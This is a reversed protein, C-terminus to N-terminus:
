SGQGQQRNRYAHHVEASKKHLNGVARTDAADGTHSISQHIVPGQTVQPINPPGFVKYMLDKLGDEFASLRDNSTALPVGQTPPPGGFMDYLGQKFRNSANKDGTGTMVTLGDIATSIKDLIKHKEGFKQLAEALRAIADVIKSIDKVIENGHKANFHGVAMEIKTGLNSWGRNASSLSDIEKNSYKPAKDFNKQSFVGQVLGPLLSEVGFSKVVENRLGANDEKGVYDQLRQILLEPNQQWKLVEQATVNGTLKALRAMGEPAGKGMLTKTMAAQLAGFSSMMQENTIAVQRGAYQYEQVTQASTKLVASFNQLGQGAQGSAQMLRELVYFVGVLAAKTELSLSMAGKLGKATSELAGVTKEAGKIGLNVFLEGANIGM